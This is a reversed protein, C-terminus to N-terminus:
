IAWRWKTPDLLNELPERDLSSRTRIARYLLGPVVIEVLDDHTFTLWTGDRFGKSRRRFEIARDEDLVVSTRFQGPDDEFWLEVKVGRSDIELVRGCYANMALIVDKDSAVWAKTTTNTLFITLGTCLDQELDLIDKEIETTLVFLNQEDTMTTGDRRINQMFRHLHDTGEFAATVPIPMMPVARGLAECDIDISFGIDKGEDLRKRIYRVAVEDLQLQGKANVTVTVVNEAQAQALAQSSLSLQVWAEHKAKMRKLNTVDFKVPQDDVLKHHTKCLLILNEYEDV